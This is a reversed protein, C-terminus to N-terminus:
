HRPVVASAPAGAAGPLLDRLSAVTPVGPPAGARRRDLLVARLGAARAGEVDEALSDGVHIAEEPRVGVRELAAHFIEPEPKAAGVAASSLVADLWPTLGARGLVQGLSADWNSVVVRAVGLEGLRRLVEPVEDFVTFRLSDILAEALDEETAGRLPPSGPLAARLAGACDLRLRRVSTEDWGQHMHARYFRIEAALARAAEPETVRVDFRERLLSRLRPAPAELHVLTGMSDLLLARM